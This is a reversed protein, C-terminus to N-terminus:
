ILSIPDVDVNLSVGSGRLETQGWNLLELGVKRLPAVRISKLLLHWRHKGKVKPLPAAVPGLLEVEESYDAGKYILERCKAALRQAADETKKEVNGALQFLALRRYPPYDLERRFAMEEGFFGKYDHM